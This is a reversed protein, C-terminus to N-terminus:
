VSEKASAYKEFGRCGIASSCDLICALKEGQTGNVSSNHRGIKLSIRSLFRITVVVDTALARMVTRARGALRRLASAGWFAV